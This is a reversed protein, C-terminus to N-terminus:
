AKPGKNSIAAIAGAVLASGAAKLADKLLSGIPLKPLKIKM